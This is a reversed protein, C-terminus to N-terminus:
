NEHQTDTRADHTERPMNQEKLTTHINKEHQQTQEDSRAIKGHTEEHRHNSAAMIPTRNMKTKVLCIGYSKGTLTKCIHM